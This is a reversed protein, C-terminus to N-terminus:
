IMIEKCVPSTFSIQIQNFGIFFNYKFNLMDTGLLYGNAKKSILATVSTKLLTKWETPGWYSEIGKVNTGVPQLILQQTGHPQNPM